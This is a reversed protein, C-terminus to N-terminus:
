QHQVQIDYTTAAGLRGVDYVRVCFAGANQASGLIVRGQVAADNTIILQCSNTTQNWTGLALGIVVDTGAGVNVLSASVSGTTGVVFPHTVAGNITLTGSFTETIITPAAQTPGTPVSTNNCGAAAALALTLIALRPVRLGSPSLAARTHATRPHLAPVREFM